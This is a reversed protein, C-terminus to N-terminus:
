LRAYKKDVVFFKEEYGVICETDIKVPVRHSVRMRDNGLIEEVVCVGIGIVHCVDKTTM